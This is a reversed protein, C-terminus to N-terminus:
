NEEWHSHKYDTGSRPKTALFPGNPQVLRRLLSAHCLTVSSYSLLAHCFLAHCLSPSLTVVPPDGRGTLPRRRSTCAKVHGLPVAELIMTAVLAGAARVIRLFPRGHLLVLLLEDLEHHLTLHELEALEGQLAAALGGEEHVRAGVHRAVLQVAEAEEIRAGDVVVEPQVEVHHETRRVLANRQRHDGRHADGLQVTLLHPVAGVAFLDLIVARIRAVQQTGLQMVAIAHDHHLVHRGGPFGDVLRVGDQLTRGIHVDLAQDHREVAHLHALPADHRRLLFHLLLVTERHRGDHGHGLHSLAQM